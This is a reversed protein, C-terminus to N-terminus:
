SSEEEKLIIKAYEISLRNSFRKLIYEWKRRSGKSSKFFGKKSSFVSIVFPITKNKLDKVPYCILSGEIDKSSQTFIYNKKGKKQGETKVDEVILMTGQKKAVSFGCSSSQLENIDCTPGEDRPNFCVFREIHEAGMKALSVEFKAKEKYLTDFFVFIGYIINEIYDFPDIPTKWCIQEKSDLLKELRKKKEGVINREIIELLSLIEKNSACPNDSIFDSVYNWVMTVVFPWSFSLFVIWFHNNELFNSIWPCTTTIFDKFDNERYYLLILGPLISVIFPSFIYKWISKEARKRIYNRIYDM